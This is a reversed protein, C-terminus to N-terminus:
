PCLYSSPFCTPLDIIEDTLTIASKGLNRPFKAPEDKSINREKSTDTVMFEVVSRSPTSTPLARGTWTVQSSGGSAEVLMNNVTSAAIATSVHLRTGSDAFTEM